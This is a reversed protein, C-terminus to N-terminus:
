QKSQFCVVWSFFLVLFLFCLCLIGELLCSEFFVLFALFIIVKEYDSLLVLFLVIVFFLGLVFGVCLVSFSFNLCSSESFPPFNTEFFCNLLLFPFPLFVFSQLFLFLKGFPTSPCFGLFCHFKSLSSVLFVLFFCVLFFLLIQFVLGKLCCFLFFSWFQLVIAKQPSKGRLCFCLLFSCSRGGGLFVSKGLVFCKKCTPLCGGIKPLNRNKKSQYEKMEAFSHKTSFVIFITNEASRLKKHVM